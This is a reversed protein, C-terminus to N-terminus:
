GGLNRFFDLKEEKYWENSYQVLQIKGGHEFILIEPLYPHLIYTTKFLSRRLSPRRSSSSHVNQDTNTASPTNGCPSSTFFPLILKQPM